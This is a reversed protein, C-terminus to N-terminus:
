NNELEQLFKEVDFFNSEVKKYSAPVNWWESKLLRSVTEEDFRYKIVKAPVGGVIAYPPVDKTIVAGAGLVAGHGINVGDLITINVGIFVDSGIVIQQREEIKSTNVLSVGNQKRNSYFMPATSIGNVPHIGRGCVLNPGISCFKGITAYSIAANQSIYTFDDVSTHEIRYPYNLKVKYGFTSKVKYSNYSLYSESNYNIVGLVPSIKGIIKELIKRTNEKIQWFLGPKNSYYADIKKAVVNDEKIPQLKVNQASSLETKFQNSENCHVGSGDFGINSVLSKSPHLALGNKFYWSAYWKVAWTYIEGYQNRKLQDYFDASGRINFRDIAASDELEELHNATNPNYHKWARSWTAWGWCSLLRLCITSTKKTNIPYMYGSIHMVREENEYLTLADNMYQLFGKSTVIDDELVIIKGYTNIIETVGFVISDALGKNTDSEYITVKKCWQQEKILARVEEIAKITNPDADYKPGDSYVFLESQSALDNQALAELTRLTHDPRNYVFLAIPALSM